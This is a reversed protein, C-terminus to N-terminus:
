VVVDVLRFFSPEVETTLVVADDSLLKGSPRYDGAFCSNTALVRFTLEVNAEDDYDCGSFARLNTLRPDPSPSDITLAYVFPPHAIQSIWSRAGTRADLRVQLPIHSVLDNVNYGAFVDYRAPLTTAHQDRAFQSLAQHCAAFREGNISFFMAVIRKLISLPYRCLQAYERQVVVIEGPKLNALADHCWQGFRADHLRGLAGNCDECQRFKYIGGAIPRDPQIEAYINRVTPSTLAANRRIAQNVMSSLRVHHRNKENFACQPQIHDKTLRDTEQGCLWCIGRKAM